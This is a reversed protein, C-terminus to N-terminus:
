GHKETSSWDLLFDYISMIQIGNEDSWQKTHEGVILLKRFSDDVLRLSRKEQEMKEADPMRWASQIYIRESGKNCVFDVELTVRQQKGETNRVRHYVNGVDVLWGRMRMENYIVNEMIHTPESQRFSLIANRLGVDQYYYKSLSGIYKRGKIDFRESKEILFADQMYELYASVTKDTISQVNSVSKFTNAINLANVPAGISSAVTKSLEEFEPRLEINNREYIDRLYVTRYLRRLFDAKKEDGVQTLLQPLGGYLRYEAWGDEKSGDYVTMFEKFSLPWVHIEDGRGRFETVLDSSLFRSNSGTVYVDAGETVSLSSLVEVFDEVEQVEDIIIYYTEYDIMMKEVWDLLYDPNKFERNKRSEMDIVLIHDERVGEDLLHQHFLKKLLFSKGSRRLGTIIKIHGNNKSRSLQEIYRYRNVIM